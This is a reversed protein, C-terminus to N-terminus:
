DHLDVGLTRASLKPVLRPYLRAHRGREYRARVSEAVAAPLVRLAVAPETRLDTLAALADDLIAIGGAARALDEVAPPASWRGCLELVQSAWLDGLPLLDALPLRGGLLLATRNAPHALLPADVPATRWDTAAPAVGASRWVRSEGLEQVLWEYALEGEPTWDELVVIGRAGSDRVAAACVGRIIAAVRWSRGAPDEAGAPTHPQLLSHGTIM